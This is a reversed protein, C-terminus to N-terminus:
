LNRSASHSSPRVLASPRAALTSHLPTSRDVVRLQWGAVLSKCKCGVSVVKVLINDLCMRRELSL